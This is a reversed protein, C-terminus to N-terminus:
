WSAVTPRASAFSTRHVIARDVSQWRLWADQVVDEAEAANRLTRFAAALIRSRANIFSSVGDDPADAEQVRQLAEM